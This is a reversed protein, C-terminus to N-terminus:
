EGDTDGRMARPLDRAAGNFESWTAECEYNRCEIGEVDDGGDWGPTRSTEVTIEGSCYPCRLDRAVTEADAEPPRWGADVFAAAPAYMPPQLGQNAAEHRDYTTEFPALISHARLILENRDSM